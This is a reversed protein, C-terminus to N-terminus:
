SRRDRGLNEYRVASVTLHVEEPHAKPSSSISYLRPALKRFLPLFEAIALPTKLQKIVDLVDRGWLWKKLDERKEPALLAALESDPARKAVGELLDQSPKTIDLHSAFAERAPMKFEGVEIIADGDSRLASLLSEVLVPCNAPMVGLADGVEYSLGSGDLSLEHHWVEKSSGPKNLLVKKLLRAPFPNSKNFAPKEQLLKGNFAHGNVEPAPLAPAGNVAASPLKEWFVDM